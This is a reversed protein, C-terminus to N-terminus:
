YAYARRFKMWRLWWGRLLYAKSLAEPSLPSTARFDERLRALIDDLPQQATTQLRVSRTAGIFNRACQHAMAMQVGVHTECPTFRLAQRLPSLAAVQDQVKPLRITAL